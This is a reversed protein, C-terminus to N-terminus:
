PWHLLDNAKQCFFFPFNKSVKSFKWVSNQDWDYHTFTTSMGRALRSLEWFLYHERRVTYIFNPIFFNPKKRQDFEQTLKNFNSPVVKIFDVNQLQNTFYEFCYCSFFISFVFPYFGYAKKRESYESITIFLWISVLVTKWFNWSDREFLAFVIWKPCLPVKPNKIRFIQFIQVDAFYIFLFSNEFNKGIANIKKFDASLYLKM